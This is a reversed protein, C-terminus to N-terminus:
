QWDFHFALQTVRDGSYTVTCTDGADTLRYVVQSGNVDGSRGLTREIDDRTAGVRLELDSSYLPRSIVLDSVFSRRPRTLEHVVVDLGDYRMTYVRGRAKEPRAMGTTTPDGLVDVVDARDVGPVALSDADLLPRLSVQAEVAPRAALAGLDACGALLLAAALTTFRLWRRPEPQPRVMPAVGAADGETPVASPGNRRCM